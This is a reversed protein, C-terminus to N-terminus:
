YMIVKNGMNSSNLGVQFLNLKLDMLSTPILFHSLALLSSTLKM